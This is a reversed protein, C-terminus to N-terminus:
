RDSIEKETQIVADKVSDFMPIAKTQPINLLQERYNEGVVLCFELGLAKAERNAQAISSVMAPPYPADDFCVVSYDFHNDKISHLADSIQQSLIRRYDETLNQGANGPLVKIVFDELDALIIDDLKTVFARNTQPKTLPNLFYGDYGNMLAETAPRMQNEPFLAFLQADSQTDVLIQAIRAFAKGALVSDVIISNFSAVDCTAKLEERNTCTELAVYGPLLGQMTACTKPNECMFLTLNYKGQDLGEDEFTGDEENNHLAYSVKECLNEASTPKVIMESVGYQMSQAIVDTQTVSTILIVPTENGMGRMHSLVRTGDMEPMVMDLLILHIQESGLLKLANVGSDAEFVQYGVKGLIDSFLKRINRSDDVILIKYDSCHM